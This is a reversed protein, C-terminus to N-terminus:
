TEAVLQEYDSRYDLKTPFVEVVFDFEPTGDVNVTFKSFGVESGFNISGFVLCEGDEAVLSKAVNPDPHDLTVTKGNKSRVFVKYETQEFLQPGIRLVSDFAVTEPVGARWVSTFVLDKRRKYLQLTGPLDGIGDMLKRGEGAPGRWSLEASDTEIEFLK